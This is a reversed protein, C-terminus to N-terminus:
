WRGSGPSDEDEYRTTLSKVLSPFARPWPLPPPAALAVYFFIASNPTPPFFSGPSESSRSPLSTLLSSRRPPCFISLGPFSPQAQSKFGLLRGRLSGFQLPSRQSASFHFPPGISSTKCFKQRYELSGRGLRGPFSDWVHVFFIISEPLRPPELLCTRGRFPPPPHAVLV